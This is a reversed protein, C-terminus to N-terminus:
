SWPRVWLEEKLSYIKLWFGPSWLSFALGVVYSSFLPIFICTLCPKEIQLEFFNSAWLFSHFGTMKLVMPPGLSSRVLHLLDSLSPCVDCSVMWMNFRFLRCLHVERCFLFLSMTMSFLSTTPPTGPPIFQSHSILLHLSNYISHMFLLTKSYLM